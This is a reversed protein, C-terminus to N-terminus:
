RYYLVTMFSIVVGEVNTPSTTIEQGHLDVRKKMKSIDVSFSSDEDFNSGRGLKAFFSGTLASCENDNHGERLSCRLVNNKSNIGDVFLVDM